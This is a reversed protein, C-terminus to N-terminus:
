APPAAPGIGAQMAYRVLEARRRAGTKDRIRELHSRVTNVSLYLERAIQADTAGGALLAVIERERESLSGASGHAAVRAAPVVGTAAAEADPGAAATALAIAEAQSLTRGRAYAAEFAADGLTHRLRAHDRDRLEAELAEFARGAQEYHEDAAGHLTAAITPDGDGGAALALGLLAGHVYSTVGTIRAIDLSNLFHRRANRPDADVLDILGLNQHLGASLNQYGLNDALTSAEELHARAAGLEGAAHEDIALNALTIVVRYNDGAARSLTIAERNDAFATNLDGAESEFVARRGLIYAILRPDGAARALGVADDIQALAAPLDGHEFSLWCLQALADAAVADDDLARAIRLAEDAMSPPAPDDGLYDRLHCSVILARARVRTPPQADPRQLLVDLAQLVESGHGRM